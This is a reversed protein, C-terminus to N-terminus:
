ITTGQVDTLVRAVSGQPMPQGPAAVWLLLRSLRM